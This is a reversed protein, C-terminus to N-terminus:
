RTAGVTNFTYGDTPCTLLFETSQPVTYQCTYATGGTPSFTINPSSVTYTGSETKVSNNFTYGGNATLTITATQGTSKSLGTWNGVASYSTGSPGCSALLFVALTAAIRM